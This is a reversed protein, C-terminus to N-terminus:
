IRYKAIWIELLAITKLQLKSPRVRAMGISADLRSLGMEDMMQGSKIGRRAFIEDLDDKAQKTLRRESDVIPAPTPPLRGAAVTPVVAGIWARFADREATSAKVWEARMVQLPSRGRIIGAARCAANASAYKGAVYDAYVAPNKREVLKLFYASDRKSM